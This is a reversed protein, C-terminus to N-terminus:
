RDGVRGVSPPRDMEFVLFPRGREDFAVEAFRFGLKDVLRRSARSPDELVTIVREIGRRRWADALVARGAETALGSGHWRTGLLCGFEPDPGEFPPGALMLGSLGVFAGDLTRLVWVILGRARGEDFWPPYEEAALHARAEADLEPDLAAPWSANVSPDLLIDALVDAWDREREFPRLELRDTTLVLDDDTTAHSSQEGDPRRVGAM